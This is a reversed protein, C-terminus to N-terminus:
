GILKGRQKIEGKERRKEKRIKEEKKKQRRPETCGATEEKRDRSDL